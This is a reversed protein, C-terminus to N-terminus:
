VLATVIAVYNDQIQDISLRLLGDYYNSDWSRGDVGWPNYVTVYNSSDISVVQYAHSGVVPSSASAISTSEKASPFQKSSASGSATRPVTARTFTPAESVLTFTREAPEGRNVRSMEM